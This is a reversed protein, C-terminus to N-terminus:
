LVAVTNPDILFVLLDGRREVKGEASIFQGVQNYVSAPLAGGDPGGVLLFETGDIPQTSVFVPPIGGILCLNACAKHALGRGPRMAGALCKGDCIEGAIRWRGLDERSLPPTAGDAPGLGQKGGRVQLMDLDGRQLVIGSVTVLKGDLNRARNMLGRKGGAALMLTHGIPIRDNGETVRVLPYPNLELVGTVTQRGYDFRFAGQGPDDQTIGILAGAGMFGAVTSIGATLLFRRSQAPAPLYGVFFPEDQRTM